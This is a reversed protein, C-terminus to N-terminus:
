TEGYKLQNVAKFATSVNTTYISSTLGYECDNALAFAEDLDSFSLVPLM